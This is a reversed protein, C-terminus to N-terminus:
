VYLDINEFIDDKNCIEFSKKVCNECIRYLRVSDEDKNVLNEIKKILKNFATQNLECEFVSLNVRIGVGELIDSLKKRIKNNQIDYTIIYKM